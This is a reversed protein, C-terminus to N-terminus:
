WITHGYYWLPITQAGNDEKSIKPNSRPPQREIQPPFGKGNFMKFAMTMDRFLKSTWRNLM